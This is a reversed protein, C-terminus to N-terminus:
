GWKLNIINNRECNDKIFDYTDEAIRGQEQYMYCIKDMDAWLSTSLLIGTILILKKM